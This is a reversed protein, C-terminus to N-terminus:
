GTALRLSRPPEVSWDPGRRAKIAAFDKRDVADSNEPLILEWLPFFDGGVDLGELCAHAGYVFDHCADIGQQRLEEAFQALGDLEIM